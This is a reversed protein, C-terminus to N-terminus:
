GAKWGRYLRRGGSALWQVFLVPTVGIGFIATLFFFPENVAFLADIFNHLAGSLVGIVLTVIIGRLTAFFGVKRYLAVGGALCGLGWGIAALWEWL